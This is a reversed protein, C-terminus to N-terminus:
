ERQEKTGDQLAALAGQSLRAASVAAGAARDALHFLKDGDLRADGIAMIRELVVILEAAFEAFPVPDWLPRPFMDVIEEMSIRCVLEMLEAVRHPLPQFTESALYHSGSSDTVTLDITVTGPWAPLDSVSFEPQGNAGGTAGVVSWDYTLGGQDALASIDVYFRASGGEAGAIGCEDAIATIRIRITDDHADYLKIWRTDSLPGGPEPVLLLKGPDVHLTLPGGSDGTGLSVDQWFGHITENQLTGHFVQAFSEDRFPGMGLWWVADDVQHVYYTTGDNDGWV